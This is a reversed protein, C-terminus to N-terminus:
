PALREMAAVFNRSADLLSGSFRHLDGGILFIVDDGYFDHLEALRDVSMGGAPVPFIAPLGALADKCGGVLDRCEATTFAFRGGHSPFISADAGALRMLQGYIVRPAIGSAPSVSFSGLMAPHALIPLGLDAAALSRVADFGTLGPAILFGGAGADRAHRARTLLQDGPASINAVYLCHHGSERNARDIAAACREVRDAFRSAPQDALGHDDKVIDIGGRAFQYANDALDAASTGMPKLATCLLPRRDAGVLGRMGSIGFRPGTWTSSPLEALEIGALRVGPVLSINGFLVNLLQTFDDGIVDAAFEIGFEHLEPTLETRAVIRGCIHARIHEDDILDLPFEVTQEVCIAAARQSARDASGAIQYRAVISRGRPAPTM